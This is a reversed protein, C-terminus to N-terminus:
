IVVRGRLSRETEEDHGFGREAADLVRDVSRSSLAPAIESLHAAALDRREPEDSRLRELIEGVEDAPLLPHPPPELAGALAVAAFAVLILLPRSAAIVIAWVAGTRVTAHEERYIGAR